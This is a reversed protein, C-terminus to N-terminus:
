RGPVPPDGARDGGPVSAPYLTLRGKRGRGEDAIILTNDDAFTIGEMQRHWPASVRRASLVRGTPEVEAIARQRAAVVFYNGSAPHLELGSPQFQTVGLNQTYETVPISIHADQVLRKEDISWRYIRLEDKRASGRARKCMLLLARDTEDHALGEVECDRGVGTTYINYLVSEGDGGEASEFIRGSSTVLYIRDRTAAIGEFDGAVPRGTDSLQFAKRISGDGWDIEFVIGEEDNHALLRNDMTMALGSIEELRGPLKHSVAQGDQLEYSRLAPEGPLVEQTGPVPMPAAANNPPVAPVDSPADEGHTLALLHLLLGFALFGLLSKDGPNPM